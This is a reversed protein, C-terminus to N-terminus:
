KDLISASVSTTTVQFPFEKYTVRDTASTKTDLGNSLDSIPVEKASTGQTTIDDSTVNDARAREGKTTQIIDGVESTKPRDSMNFSSITPDLIDVENVVKHYTTGGGWAENVVDFSTADTQETQSKTEFDLFHSGCPRSYPGEGYDWDYRLDQPAIDGNNFSEASLADYIGAALGAWPGYYWSMGFKIATWAYPGFDIDSGGSAPPHGGVGYYGPETIKTEKNFRNHVSVRHSQLNRLTSWNNCDAPRREEYGEAHAGTTFFHIWRGGGKVSGYYTTAASHILKYHTGWGCDTPEGSDGTDWVWDAESPHDTSGTGCADAAAATGILATTGVGSSLAVTSLLASKKLADRRSLTSLKSSNEEAKNDSSPM